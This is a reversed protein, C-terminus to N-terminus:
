LDIAETSDPTCLVSKLIEFTVSWLFQIVGHFHNDVHIKCVSFGTIVGKPEFEWASLEM